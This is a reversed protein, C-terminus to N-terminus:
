RRFVQLVSPHGRALGQPVAVPAASRVSPDIRLRPRVSNPVPRGLRPTAAVAVTAAGIALCIAVVEGMHHGGMASHAMGVSLALAAILAVALVRARRHGLKRRLVLSM